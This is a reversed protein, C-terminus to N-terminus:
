IEYINIAYADLFHDRVQRLLSSERIERPLHIRMERKEVALRATTTLYKKNKIRNLAFPGLPDQSNFAKLFYFLVLFV